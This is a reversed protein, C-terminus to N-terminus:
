RRPLGAIYATLVCVPDLPAVAATRYLLMADILGVLDVASQEPAVVRLRDLLSRATENLRARVPDAGTLSARLDEDDRLELLLALRAAQAQERAALQNLFAAAIRVVATDDLDEPIQLAGLEASLQQTVRAVVLATLERRTRAYYSTSGAAVGAEADVARHTLARVGGSATLRIGADALQERRDM